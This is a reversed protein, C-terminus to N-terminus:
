KEESTLLLSFAYVLKESCTCMVDLVVPIHQAYNREKSKARICIFVVVSLSDTLYNCM